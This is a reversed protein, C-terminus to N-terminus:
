FAIALAVVSHFFFSFSLVHCSSSSIFDHISFCLDFSFGHTSVVLVGQFLPCCCGKSENRWLRQSFSPVESWVMTETGKEWWVTLLASYNLTEMCSGLTFITCQYYANSRNNQSLLPPPPSDSCLALSSM